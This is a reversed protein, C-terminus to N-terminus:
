TSDERIWRELVSAAIDLDEAAGITARLCAPLGAGGQPRLVIGEARLALDAARAQAVTGFRILAFNTFSDAVDLGARRLRAIFPDRLAVTQAVTERMYAHDTIAAVAAAQSTAPINNPTLVKRMQASVSPPVYGWGVRAGALGYAKSLTRLVVTRGRDVLDFLPADPGDTFEGYAEDVVLLATDPLTDRLRVLEARPLCTGTPNGPNAVFVLRTEPRCTALLADVSVRGAVEPATDFRADVLLAATRFFPYANTPALVATEPGAFARALAAILEMSGAGCLIREAALRHQAALAARLATWEPDPYFQGHRLASEAATVAPSPPRLSENQSLSILRKGEPARLESLAYPALAAIHDAPIM